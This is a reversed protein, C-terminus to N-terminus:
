LNGITSRGQRWRLDFHELQLLLAEHLWDAGTNSRKTIPKPKM